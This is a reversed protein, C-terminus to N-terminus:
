VAAGDTVVAWGNGTARVYTPVEANQEFQANNGPTGTYATADDESENFIIAGEGDAAITFVAPGTAIQQWAQTVETRIKSM